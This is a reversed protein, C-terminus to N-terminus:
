SQLSGILDHAAGVGHRRCYDAIGDRVADLTAAVSPFPPADEDLTLSLLAGSLPSVLGTILRYGILSLPLSM